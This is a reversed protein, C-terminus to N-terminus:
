EPNGSYDEPNIGLDKMAKCLLDYDENKTEIFKIAGFKKLIKKGEETKDLDVLLEKLRNKVAPDMDKKVALGNSPVEFSEALVVMNERFDPFKECLSDYVHNKCFGVDVEGTYVSWAAADHSGAFYVGSFYDEIGEIGMIGHEKFYVLPFIYGATTARHVLAVSKGKMDDVTKIGSYKRTLLLGSYTSSGDRWVPRAIVEVGARAHALVYGFSGFFAMDAADDLFVDSMLGYDYVPNIRVIVNMKGSLYEAIHRYREKQEVINKEPVLAIILEDRQHAEAKESGVMGFAILSFLVVGSMVSRCGMSSM